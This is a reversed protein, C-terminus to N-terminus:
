FSVCKEIRKELYRRETANRTLPLATSFQRRAADPNGRRLELEGIAAPYFPYRELRDRDAIARLEDIGRAPGDRHAIAVARNLAVVPSPTVAM